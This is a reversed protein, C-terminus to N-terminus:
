PHGVQQSDRGGDAVTRRLTLDPYGGLPLQAKLVALSHYAVYTGSVSFEETAYVTGNGDIADLIVM